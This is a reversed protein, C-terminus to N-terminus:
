KQSSSAKILASDMHLVVAPDSSTEIQQQFEVFRALRNIASWEVESKECHVDRLVREFLVQASNCKM